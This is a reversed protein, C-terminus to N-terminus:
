SGSSLLCITSVTMASVAILFDQMYIFPKTHLTDEKQQLIHWVDFDWGQQLRPWCVTCPTSTTPSNRYLAQALDGYRCSSIRSAWNSCRVFTMCFPRGPTCHITQYLIAGDIQMVHLLIWCALNSAWFWFRSRANESWTMAALPRSRVFAILINHM